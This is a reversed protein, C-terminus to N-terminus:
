LTCTLHLLARNYFLSGNVFEGLLGGIPYWYCAGESVRVGLTGLSRHWKWPSYGRGGRNILSIERPRMLVAHRMGDCELRWNGRRYDPRILGVRVM